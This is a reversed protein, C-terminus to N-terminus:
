ASPKHMKMARHRNSLSNLAPRRRASCARARALLAEAREHLEGEVHVPFGVGLMAERALLKGFPQRVRRCASGLDALGAPLDRVDLGVFLGPALVPCREVRM